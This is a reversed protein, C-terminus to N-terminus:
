KKGRDNLAVRAPEPAAAAIVFELPLAETRECARLAASLLTSVLASESLYSFKKSLADIRQEDEVGVYIWVRRPKTKSTANPKKSSVDLTKRSICFKPATM